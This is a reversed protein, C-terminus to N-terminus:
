SSLASAKKPPPSVPMDILGFKAAVVITGADYLLADPKLQDAVKDSPVVTDPTPAQSAVVAFFPSMEASPKEGLPVPLPQQHLILEGACPALYTYPVVLEDQEVLHPYKQALLIFPVLALFM